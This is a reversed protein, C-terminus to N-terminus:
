SLKDKYFHDREPLHLRETVSWQLTERMVRKGKGSDLEWRGSEWPFRPMPPAKM